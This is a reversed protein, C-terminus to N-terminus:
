TQAAGAPVGPAFSVSWVRVGAAPAIRLEHDSHHPHEALEYLGGGDVEVSREAGDVVAILEGAGDVTAYAGGASYGLELAPSAPAPTWPESLSGGPLQCGSDVHQM